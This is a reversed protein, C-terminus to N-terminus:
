IEVQFSVQPNVSALFREGTVLFTAVFAEILFRIQMGMHQGM